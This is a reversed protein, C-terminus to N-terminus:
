EELQFFFHLEKKQAEETGTQNIRLDQRNNAGWQRVQKRDGTSGSQHRSRNEWESKGERTRDLNIWKFVNFLKRFNMGRRWSRWLSLQQSFLLLNKLKANLHRKKKKGWIRLELSGKQKRKCSYGKSNRSNKLYKAKNASKGKLFEVWEELSVKITAEINQKYLSSEKREM